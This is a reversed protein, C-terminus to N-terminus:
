KNTHYYLKTTYTIIQFNFTGDKDVSQVLSLDLWKCFSMSTATFDRLGLFPSLNMFHLGCSLRLIRISELISNLSSPSQPFPSMRLKEWFCLSHLFTLTTTVLIESKPMRLHVSLNVSVDWIVSFLGRKEVHNQPGTTYFSCGPWCLSGPLPPPLPLLVLLSPCSLCPCSSWSLTHGFHCNYLLSFRSFPFGM